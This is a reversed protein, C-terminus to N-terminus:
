MFTDLLPETLTIGFLYGFLIEIMVVFLVAFLVIKKLDRKPELYKVIFVVMIFSSILFGVCDWLFAYAFLTVFTVTAKGELFRVKIEPLKNARFWQVSKYFQSISLILLLALIWKPITMPTIVKNASRPDQATYAFYLMVISFVILFFSVALEAVNQTKIAKDDM